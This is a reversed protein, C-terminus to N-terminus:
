SSVPRRGYIGEFVGSSIPLNASASEFDVLLCTDDQATDDPLDEATQLSTVPTHSVKKLHSAKQQESM